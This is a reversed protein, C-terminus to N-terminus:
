YEYGNILIKVNVFSNLANYYITQVILLPMTIEMYMEGSTSTGQIQMNFKGIVGDSSPAIHAESGSTTQNQSVNASILKANAPVATALSVSTWSTASGSSLVNDQQIGVYVGVQHFKDFASGSDNYVAGVLGKFTYGSPMTPATASISLLGAVTTGNYIVWLYYWTSSAESGTDLGNVGSATIDVTLNVTEARFGAGGTNKLLVADADIDATTASVYKNVLGEHPALVNGGTVEVVFGTTTSDITLRKVGGTYFDIEDDTTAEIYTDQNDDLILRQGDLDKAKTAPWALDEGNNLINNFEANLDSASLIEAAVWTKSRSVAM